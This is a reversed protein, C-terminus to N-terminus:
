FDPEIVSIPRIIRGNVFQWRNQLVILNTITFATCLFGITEHVYM